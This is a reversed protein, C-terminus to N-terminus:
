RDETAQNPVRNAVQERLWTDAAEKAAAVKAARGYKDASCGPLQAHWFVEPASGSITIAKRHERQGTTDRWFRSPAGHRDKDPEWGSLTYGDLTLPKSM